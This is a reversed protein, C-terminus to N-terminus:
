DRRIFQWYIAPEWTNNQEQHTTGRGAAKNVQTMLRFWKAQAKHIRHDADKELAYGVTRLLALTGAWLVFWSGWPPHSRLEHVGCRCQHLIERAKQANPPTQSVSM